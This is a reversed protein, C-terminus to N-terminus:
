VVGLSPGTDLTKAERDIDPGGLVDVGDGIGDFGATAFEVGLGDVGKPARAEETESVGIPELEGHQFRQRLAPAQAM